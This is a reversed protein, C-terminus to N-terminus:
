DAPGQCTPCYQASGKSGPVDAVKGGCVPCAEGTRGHVRMSEAKAQKLRPLPISRRARVAEALEDRIAEFLVEREAEDLAAAHTTPAIKARHLIEDSYANGIGSISEQEQLLAKLQKRRGVTIRDFDARTYTPSLPDPGLKKVAPVDQPHDVLSLALSLWEGADTFELATDDDLEVTAIVAAAPSTPEAADHAADDDDEVRHRVWGARGLTVVLDGRDTDIDLHKGFRTVGTITAGVLGEVPRDRTKWSRFEGVDVGIIRRHSVADDLVDALVQVEPSEPM